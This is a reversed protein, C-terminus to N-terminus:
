SNVFQFVGDGQPHLKQNYPIPCLAHSLHQQTGGCSWPLVLKLFYHSLNYPCPM